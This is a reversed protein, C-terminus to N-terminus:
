SALGCALTPEFGYAILVSKQKGGCFYGTRSFYRTDQVPVHGPGTSSYPVVDYIFRHFPTKNWAPNTVFSKGSKVTPAVKGISNLHFVGIVNCGFKNQGPKPAKGCTKSHYKQAVYSGVSFPYIVNPNPKGGRLFVPSIGENEEPQHAVDLNKATGCTPESTSTLGLATTMWFSLTGSGAQPVIPDIGANPNKTKPGLLAGWTGAKFGHAAPVTCGFIEKLQALSLNSPANTNSTTAYTVADGALIVFVVGGPGSGDTTKRPRSSRAFNICPYKHGKFTANGYTTLAAIGSSSGNPRLEPKCGSKLTITQTTDLPHNPPVADWSYLFPNSPSHPHRAAVTANYDVSLQDIVYMTTASGGGVVDYAAPTVFKGHNNIPEAMAPAMALATAAAAAASVAVLSKIIRV